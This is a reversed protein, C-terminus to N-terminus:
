LGTFHVIGMITGELSLEGGELWWLLLFREFFKELGVYEILVNKHTHTHPSCLSLLFLPYYKNVHIKNNSM